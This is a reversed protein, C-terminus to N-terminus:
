QIGSKSYCNGTQMWAGTKSILEDQAIIRGNIIDDESLALM